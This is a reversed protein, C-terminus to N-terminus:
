EAVCRVSSGFARTLPSMYVSYNRDFFLNWATIDLDPENSWYEGGTSPINLVGNADRYGTAPLFLQNSVTGYLRGNVGTGNWNEVWTGGTTLTRLEAQTPVRWGVPCPDNGSTWTTGSANTNDWGSVTGTAAWATTRNWQYFMGADQPNAAFTGFEDVNSEAWRIDGIIVGPAASQTITIKKRLLATSIYFEGTRLDTTPNSECTIVIFDTTNISSTISLNVWSPYGSEVTWGAPYNSFIELTQAPTGIYPLLFEFGNTIMQFQGYNIDVEQGADWQRVTAVIDILESNYAIEGTNAGVGIVDTIVIDHIHNRTVSLYMGNSDRLDVRYYSPDTSGQLYGRIILCTAAVRDAIIPNSPNDPPAVEFLFIQDIFDNGDVPLVPYILRNEYGTQKTATADPTSFAPNAWSWNRSGLFGQSSYNCLSIETIQLKDSITQNLFRINIKALARVLTVTATTQTLTNIIVEGWMPFNKYGTSGPQANWIGSLPVGATRAPLSETLLAYAALKTTGVVLPAADIANKSNALIVLELNGEPVSVTFSKSTPSINNIFIPSVRGVYRDADFILIDIRNIANDDASGGVIARSTATPINIKITIDSENKDPTIEDAMCSSLAFAFLILSVINFRFKKMM